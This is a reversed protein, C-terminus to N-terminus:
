CEIIYKQSPAGSNSSLEYYGKIFVIGVTVGIFNSPPQGSKNSSFDFVDSQVVNLWGIDCLNTVRALSLM